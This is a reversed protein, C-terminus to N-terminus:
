QGGGRAGPDALEPRVLEGKMDYFWDIDGLSEVDEGADVAPLIWLPREGDLFFLYYDGNRLRIDCSVWYGAITQRRPIVPGWGESFEFVYRPLGGDSGDNFVIDMRQRLRGVAVTTVDEMIRERAVADWGHRELIPPKPFDPNCALGLPSVLLALAAATASVLPRM